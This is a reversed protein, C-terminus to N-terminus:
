LHSVKNVDEAKVGVSNQAEKKSGFYQSTESILDLKESFDQNVTRVYFGENTRYGEDLKQNPQLVFFYEKLAIEFCLIQVGNKYEELSKTRVRKEEVITPMEQTM